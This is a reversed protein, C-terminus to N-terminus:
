YTRKVLRPVVEPREVRWRSRLWCVLPSFSSAAYGVALASRRARAHEGLEGARRALLPSTILAGRSVRHQARERAGPHRDPSVDRPATPPEASLGRIGDVCASPSGPPLVISFTQSLDADPISSYGRGTSRSHCRCICMMWPESAEM